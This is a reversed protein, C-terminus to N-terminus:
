HKERIISYARLVRLAKVAKDPLNYLPIKTNGLVNYVLAFDEGGAPVDVVPKDPHKSAVKLLSKADNPEFFTSKLMNIILVGDVNEDGLVLDLVKEYREARADAILDIPNTADVGPYLTEIRQKAEESLTALKLSNRAVADGALIAPGGVNSVIAVDDGRMPPQKSLAIAADM